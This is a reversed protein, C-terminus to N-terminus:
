SSARMARAAPRPSTSRREPPMRDMYGTVTNLNRQIDQDVRAAVDGNKTQALRKDRYKATAQELEDMNERAWKRSAQPVQGDQEVKHLDRLKQSVTESSYPKGILKMDVENLDAPGAFPSSSKRDGEFLPMTRNTVADLDLTKAVLPNEGIADLEELKANYRSVVDSWFQQQTAVPTLAM